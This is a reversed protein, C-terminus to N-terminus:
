IEFFVEDLFNEIWIDIVKRDIGTKEVVQKLTLNKPGFIKYLIANKQRLTVRKNNRFFRRFQGSSRIINLKEPHKKFFKKMVDLNESSNKLADAELDHKEALSFSFDLVDDSGNETWFFHPSFKSEQRLHDQEDTENLEVLFSCMKFENGADERYFSSFPFSTQILEFSAFSLSILFFSFFM